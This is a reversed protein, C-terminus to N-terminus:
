RGVSRLVVPNGYLNYASFNYSVTMGPVSNTSFTSNNFNNVWAFESGYVQYPGAHATSCFLGMAGIAAVWGIRNSYNM